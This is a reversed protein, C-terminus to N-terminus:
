CAWGLVEPRDTVVRSAGLAVARHLQTVSEVRRLSVEYGAAEARQLYAADAARLDILIVDVWAPLRGLVPRGHDSRTILGVRIRPDLATIRQLTEVESSTYLVKDYADALHAVDMAVMHRLLRDSFGAGEKIERQRHGGFPQTAQEVAEFSPVPAGSAHRLTRVHAWTHLAIPGAGDTMRDLTDDHHTAIRGDVTPWYDSEFGDAGAELAKVFAPITDESYSTGDITRTGDGTGRHATLVVRDRPCVLRPRDAVTVGTASAAPVVTAATVAQEPAFPCLLVGVVLVALRSGRRRALSQSRNM